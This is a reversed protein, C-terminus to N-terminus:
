AAVVNQLEMPTQLFMLATNNALLAANRVSTAHAPSSVVCACQRASCVGELRAGDDAHFKCSEARWQAAKM